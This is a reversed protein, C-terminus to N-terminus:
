TIEVLLQFVTSTKSLSSHRPRVKTAMCSPKLNRLGCWQLYKLAGLCHLNVTLLKWLMRHHSTLPGKYHITV